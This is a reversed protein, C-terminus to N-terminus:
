NIVSKLQRRKLRDLWLELDLGQSNVQCDYWFLTLSATNFPILLVTTISAWLNTIAAVYWPLTGASAHEQVWIRQYEIILWINMPLQIVQGIVVTFIVILAGFLAAKLFNRSLCAFAVRYAQGVHTAKQSVLALLPMSMSVMQVAILGLLLAVVLFGWLIIAVIAGARVATNPITLMGFLLAGGGFGLVGVLADILLYAIGLPINCFMVGLAKAWYKEIFHWGDILRAPTEQTLTIYFLRKMMVTALVSALGNALAALVVGLLSIVILLTQLWSVGTWTPLVNPITSLLSQIMVLGLPIAMVQCALKFHNRFLNWSRGVMQTPSMHTLTSM